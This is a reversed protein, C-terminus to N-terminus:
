APQGLPLARHDTAPVETGNSIRGMGSAHAPRGTEFWYGLIFYDHFHRAKEMVPALEYFGADGWRM